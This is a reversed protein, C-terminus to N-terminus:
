SRITSTARSCHVWRYRKNITYETPKLTLEVNCSCLINLVSLTCLYLRQFCTTGRFDNEGQAYLGPRKKHERDALVCSPSKDTKAHM